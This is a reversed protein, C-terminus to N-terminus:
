QKKRRKRKPVKPVYGLSENLEQILEKVEEEEHNRNQLFLDYSSSHMRKLIRELYIGLYCTPDICIESDETRYLSYAKEVPQDLIAFIQHAREKKIKYLLYCMQNHNRSILEESDEPYSCYIFPIHYKEFLDSVEKNITQETLLNIDEIGGIAYQCEDSINLKRFTSVLQKLDSYDRYHYVEEEDYQKDITIISKFPVIEERRGKLDISIELTVTPYTKGVKFTPFVFRYNNKGLMKEKILKDEKSDSEILAAMDLLHFRLNTKGEKDYYLSYACTNNGKLMFVEPVFQINHIDADNIGLMDYMMEKSPYKGHHNKFNEKFEEIKSQLKMSYQKTLNVYGLKKAQQNIYLIRDELYYNKKDKPANEKKEGFCLFNKMFDLDQPIELRQTKESKQSKELEQPKEEFNVYKKEKIYELFENIRTKLLEKEESFLSNDYDFYSEWVRLYYKPEVFPIGQNILKYKMNVIYRDLINLLIHGEEDRATRFEPIEKLLKKIYQYNRDENLLDDMIVYYYDKEFAKEKLCFYEIQNSFYKDWQKLILRVEEEEEQSFNQHKLFLKKNRIIDQCIYYFELQIDPNLDQVLLITDNLLPSINRIDEKRLLKILRLLESEHIFKEGNNLLGSYDTQFNDERNRANELKQQKLIYEKHLNILSDLSELVSKVKMRAVKNEYLENQYSQYEAQKLYKRIDEKRQPYTLSIGTNKKIQLCLTNLIEMRSFKLSDREIEYQSRIKKLLTIKEKADMDFSYSKFMDKVEDSMFYGTLQCDHYASVERRLYPKLSIQKKKEESFSAFIFEERFARIWRQIDKIQRIVTRYKELNSFKQEKLDKNKLAIWKEKDIKFLFLLENTVDYLIDEDVQNLLEKIKLYNTNEDIREKLHEAITIEKKM